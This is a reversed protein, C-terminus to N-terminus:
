DPYLLHPKRREAFAAEDSEWEAAIVRWSVGAELALRERDSGFLLDIAPIHDVFEYRETRWDERCQSTRNPHPQRRTGCVEGARCESRWRWRYTHESLLQDSPTCCSPRGANAFRM